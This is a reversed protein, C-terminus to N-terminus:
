NTSHQLKLHKRSFFFYVSCIFDFFIHGLLTVNYVIFNFEQNLDHLVLCARLIDFGAILLTLAIFMCVDRGKTHAKKSQM